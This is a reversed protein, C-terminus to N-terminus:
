RFALSGYASSFPLRISGGSQMDVLKWYLNNSMAVLYKGDPSWSMMLSSYSEGPTITRTGTGDPAMTTIAGGSAAVYAITSGDPSWTPATGPVDVATELANAVDYVKIHGGQVFAVMSGDPSPSPRLEGDALAPSGVLEPSSGDVGSRYICFASPACGADYAAFFLWQGDETPTPDAQQTVNPIGTPFFDTVTLTATDVRELIQLNNVSAAYVLAKGDPMWQPRYGAAGETASALSDVHSGDLNAMGITTGFSMALRDAPVVSVDASTSLGGLSMTITDTGVTSGVISGSASVSADKNSASWTPTEGTIVNLNQDVVASRLTVSNDVTVATDFPLVVLRAPAGPEVSFTATDVLALTPVSVVVDATGARPGLIVDVTSRGTQDTTDSVSRGCCAGGPIGVYAEYTHAYYGNDVAPDNPVLDFQVVTGPAALHGTSDRVEVILPNSLHAWATDSANNGAILQLTPGGAGGPSVPSTKGCSMAALMILLPAYRM